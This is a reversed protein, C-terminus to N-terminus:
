ADVSRPCDKLSRQTLGVCHLPSMHTGTTPAGALADSLQVRGQIISNGNNCVSGAPPPCEFTSGGTDEGGDESGTDGDGGDSEGTGDDGPGEGGDEAMYYHVVEAIKGTGFLVVPKM